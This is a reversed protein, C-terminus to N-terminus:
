VSPFERIRLDDPWESMDGGKPDNLIALSPGDEMDDDRGSLTGFYVGKPWQSLTAQDANEYFVPKSGLQKVFVPVGAAKCQRVINRIWNLRCPRANPGSEGGIIVWDIGPSIGAPKGDEVWPVGRVSFGRDFHVPGLLPEVSLFRIKAPISLLRPIRIDAAQQNEVTTGLWVNPRSEMGTRDIWMREINEPRKTVLLWDLNPTQDILDFLRERIDQMTAMRCGPELGTSPIPSNSLSGFCWWFPNGNSAIVQGKWDEFVDAYSACFVRPRDRQPCGAEHQADAKTKRCVCEAIRNCQIPKKWMEESAVVRTGAEGWVGLVRRNQKAGAEAYCNACGASVKTCGRWPNFTHTTWEIKSNEAM